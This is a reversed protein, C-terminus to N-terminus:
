KILSFKNVLASLIWDLAGMYFGLAIIIGIVVYTLRLAEQKTPWTTKYLETKVEQLFKVGSKTGGIEPKLAQQREVAM